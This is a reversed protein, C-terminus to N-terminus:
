KVTHKTKRKGWKSLKNSGCNRCSPDPDELLGEQYRDPPNAVPDPLFKNKEPM